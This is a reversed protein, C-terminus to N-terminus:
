ARIFRLYYEVHYRLAASPESSAIDTLLDRVRARLSSDGSTMGLAGLAKVSAWREDESRGNSFSSRDRSMPEFIALNLASGERHFAGVDPHSRLLGELGLYALTREFADSSRASACLASALRDELADDQPLKSSAPWLAKLAHRRYEARSDGPQAEVADLLVGVADRKALDDKMSGVQEGLAMYARARIQVPASASEAQARLADLVARQGTSDYGGFLWSVRAIATLRDETSGVRIQSSLEDATPNAARAVEAASVDFAVPQAGASVAFSLLLGHLIM